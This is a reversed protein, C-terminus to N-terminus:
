CTPIRRLDPRRAVSRRRHDDTRASEPRRRQPAACRQDARDLDIVAPPTVLVAKGALTGRYRELDSRLQLAVVVAQAIVRGDTGRTHAIPYGVMPQYDPELMHLSVYENDWTVGFDMFPEAVVNM